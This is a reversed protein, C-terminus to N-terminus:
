SVTKKLNKNLVRKIIPKHSIIKKNINCKLPTVFSCGNM